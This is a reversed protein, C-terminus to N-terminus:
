FKGHPRQFLMPYKTYKFNFKDCLNIFKDINLKSLADAIENRERPIWNVYFRFKYQIALLCIQRVFDMLYKDRADKKSLAFYVVISDTNIRIHKGSWLASWANFAAKCCFM